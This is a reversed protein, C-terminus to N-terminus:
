SSIDYISYTIHIDDYIICCIYIYIDYIIIYIYVHIHRYKMVYIIIHVKVSVTTLCIDLWRSELGGDQPKLAFLLGSNDAHGSCQVRPLRLSRAAKNAAAMPAQLVNSGPM